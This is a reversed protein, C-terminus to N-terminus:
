KLPNNISTQIDVPVARKFKLLLKKFRGCVYIRGTVPWVDKADLLDDVARLVAQPTSVFIRLPPALTLAEKNPLKFPQAYDDLSVPIDNVQMNEFVLRDIDGEQKVAALVVPVELTVGMPTVEILKAEGLRLLIEGVEQANEQDKASSKKLEVQARQVKYGCMEKPLTEQKDPSKSTQGVVISAATFLFIIPLLHYNRSM